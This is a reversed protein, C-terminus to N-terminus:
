MQLVAKRRDEDVVHLYIATTRIDEHGLQRRVLELDKTRQYLCTAHSHRWKHPTLWPYGTRAGIEGALRQVQRICLRNGHSSRFLPDADALEGRSELYRKLAKAATPNLDLLRQKAGKGNRVYVTAASFDIDRKELDCLEGVRLGTYLALTVIARDRDDAAASILRDWQKRHVFLPLKQGRAM